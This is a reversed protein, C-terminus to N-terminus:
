QSRRRLRFSEHKVAERDWVEDVAYEWADRAAEGAAEAREAADSEGRLAIDGAPSFCVCLQRLLAVVGAAYEHALTAGGSAVVSQRVFELLLSQAKSHVDLEM